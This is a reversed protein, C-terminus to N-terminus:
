NGIKTLSQGHGILVLDGIDFSNTPLSILLTIYAREARHARELTNELLEIDRIDVDKATKLIVYSVEIRPPEGYM